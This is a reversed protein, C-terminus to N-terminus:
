PWPMPMLSPMSCKSRVYFQIGDRLGSAQRIAKPIVVQGKSSLRALM